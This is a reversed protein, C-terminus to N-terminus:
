CTVERQADTAALDDASFDFAELGDASRQVLHVLTSRTEAQDLPQGASLAKNAREKLTVAHELLDDVNTNTASGDLLRLLQNTAIAESINM